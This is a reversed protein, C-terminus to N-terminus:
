VVTAMRIVPCVTTSEVETRTRSSASMASASASIPASSVSRCPFFSKKRIFESVIREEMVEVVCVSVMSIEEMATMLRITPPMPTMFMMSTDTVSRVRSIPTRM